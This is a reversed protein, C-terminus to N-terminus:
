HRLLESLRLSTGGLFVSNWSVDFTALVEIQQPDLPGHQTWEPDLLGNKTPCSWM